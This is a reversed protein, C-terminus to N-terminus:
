EERDPGQGRGGLMKIKVDYQDQERDCSEDAIGEIVPDASGEPSRQELAIIGPNEIPFIQFLSMSEVTPVSTFRNSKGSVKRDNPCECWENSSHCCHMIWLKEEVIEQAAYKPNEADDQEPMEKASQRVDLV